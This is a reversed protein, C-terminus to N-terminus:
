LPRVKDQEPIMQWSPNPQLTNFANIAKCESVIKNCWCHNWLTSDVDQKLTSHLLDRLEQLLSNSVLLTWLVRIVTWHQHTAPLLSALAAGVQLLSSLQVVPLTLGQGVTDECRPGAQPLRCAPAVRLCLGGDPRYRACPLLSTM